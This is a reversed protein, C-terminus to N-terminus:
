KKYAEGRYGIQILDRHLNERFSKQYVGTINKSDLVIPNRQADFVFDICEESLDAYLFIESYDESNFLHRIDLSINANAATVKVPLACLSYTFGSIDGPLRLELRTEQSIPVVQDSNIKIPRLKIYFLVFKKTSNAPIDIIREIDGAYTPQNLAPQVSLLIAILIILMNKLIKV